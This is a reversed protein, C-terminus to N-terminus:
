SRLGQATSSNMSMGFVMPATKGDFVRGRLLECRLAERYTQAMALAGPDLTSAVELQNAAREWQGTVCLLQFLFVRLKPDDAKGRVAEQLHTLAAAADGDRLSREAAEVASM